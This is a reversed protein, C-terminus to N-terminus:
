PGRHEWIAAMDGPMPSHFELWQRSVPHRFRLLAAHLCLRGAAPGGYAPDGLIPHGAHACHIRLQNTRGTVPELSLLTASDNQALVEVRTLASKGAPVVQWPPIADLVRGIPKDIESLLSDFVGAVIALYRKNVQRKAFALSIVRLAPTHKAVVMLGSTLRDLRHVFGPRIVPRTFEGRGEESALFPNWHGSLANALTGAKVSRTPHVLMGAPKLVIALDPDEYLIDLPIREPMMSTPPGASLEVTVVDGPSLRVGRDVTRGNVLCEGSRIASRIRIRSLWGLRAELFDDIRGGAAGAEVEIRDIM